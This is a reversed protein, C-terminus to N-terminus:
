YISAIGTIGFSMLVTFLFLAIYNLPVRKFFSVRCVLAIELVIALIFSGVWLWHM